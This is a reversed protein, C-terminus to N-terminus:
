KSLEPRRLCDTTAALAAAYSFDAEYAARAAQGMARRQAPSFRAMRVMAAAVAEVDQPATALGAGAGTVIEAAEGRVCALIPRGMALYFQVKSPITIAFLPDDLLHLILVDAAAFIDGIQTRPVAEVL